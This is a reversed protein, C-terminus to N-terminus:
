GPRDVTSSVAASPTTPRRATSRAPRDVVFRYVEPDAEILALYADVTARSCRTEAPAPEAERM